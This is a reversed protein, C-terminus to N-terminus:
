LSPSSLLMKKIVSVHRLSVTARWWLNVMWKLANELASTSSRNSIAKGAYLRGRPDCKGDNLKNGIYKKGQTEVEVINEIKSPKPSEGNWTIVQVTKNWGVVFKNDSNKVPIVFSVSSPPLQCTTIKQTSPTFKKVLASRIDVYYLCQAKEDWHPGEALKMRNKDVM